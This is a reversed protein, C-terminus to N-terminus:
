RYFSRYQTTLLFIHFLHCLEKGRLFRDFITQMTHNFTFGFLFFTNLITTEGFFHDVFFIKMPQLIFRLLWRDLLLVCTSFLFIICLFAVAVLIALFKSFVPIEIEIRSATENLPRADRSIKKKPRTGKKM